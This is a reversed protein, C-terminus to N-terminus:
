TLIHLLGRSHEVCSEIAEMKTKATRTIWDKANTAGVLSAAYESTGDVHRANLWVRYRGCESVWESFTDSDVFKM